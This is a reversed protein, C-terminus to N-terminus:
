PSMERCAINELQFQAIQEQVTRRVADPDAVADLNKAQWEDLDGIKELVHQPWDQMARCGRRIIEAARDVDGRESVLLAMDSYLYSAYRLVDPRCLYADFATLVEQLSVPGSFPLPAQSSLRTAAERYRLAHDRVKIRDDAQTRATLLRHALLLYIGDEPRCLDHVHFTPLYCDNGSDRELLIGILLSGVRRLLHMPKWVSMEPFCEAWDATIARKAQKTLMLKPM